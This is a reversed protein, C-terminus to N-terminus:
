KLIDLCETIWKLEAEAFHIGKRLALYKSKNYLSYLCEKKHKFFHNEIELFTNLQQEVEKQYCTLEKSLIESGVEEITMLKILLSNKIPAKKTPREVWAMLEERGQTTISYNKKDPKGTQNVINVALWQKTELESLTKYIQQHSAEWYFNVSGSFEKAIDYGSKEKQTVMSLIAHKLSM